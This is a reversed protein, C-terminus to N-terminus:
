LFIKYNAINEYLCVSNFLGIIRKWFKKWKGECIPFGRRAFRVPNRHEPVWLKYSELSFDLVTCGRPWEEAKFRYPFTGWLKIGFHGLLFVIAWYCLITICISIAMSIYFNVGYRLLLPLCVFLALSPIILWFISSSLANVKATDKTEIYLWTMAVVSILPASALILGIFSSRKSLESVLVILTMTVFIKILYYVLPARGGQLTKEARALSANVSIRSRWNASDLWGYM